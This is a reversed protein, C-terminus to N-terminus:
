PQDELYTSIADVDRQVRERQEWDTTAVRLAAEFEVLAGAYNGDRALIVGRKRALEAEDRRQQLDAARREQVRREADAVRDVELRLATREELARLSGHWLPHQEIFTELGALRARMGVLDAPGAEPLTRYSEALQIERLLGASILVSAVLTVLAVRRRSRRHKVRDIQQFRLDRITRAVDKRSRDLQLVERLWTVAEDNRGQKLLEKSRALYRDVLEDVQGTRRMLAALDRELAKHGPFREVCSELLERAGDADGAKEWAAALKRGAAAPSLKREQALEPRALGIIVVALLAEPDSSSGRVSAQLVDLCDALFADEYGSVEAVRSLLLQHASQQSDSAGNIALAADRVILAANTM